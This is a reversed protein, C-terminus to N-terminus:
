PLLKISDIFINVQESSCPDLRLGTIRGRWLKNGALDFEYDHFQGDNIIPVRLSTQESANGGFPDWFIQIMDASKLNEAKMRLVCKKWEGTKMPDFKQYFIPDRTSTICSLIGNETKVNKVGGSPNWEQLTNDDFDWATRKIKPAVPPLDYPGLGIDSPGYYPPFGGQPKKCFVDRLAEYMGFGFELNPEAYSGEGWENLPALIMRKQHVRDAFNKVDLCIKRFKEVTRGYVVTQRDGHWPRSDWGTSLNPLFPLVGSKQRAELYEKSENVVYDFSYLLRDVPVNGPSMFHYLSTCDFGAEKLWLIDKPDASAEPWKMAIFYIGKYGAEVAIKRSLDLLIKVGEGKKLLNGKKSEIDILDKDMQQPSWIMVVPKGDITYYDPSNFCNEIWFRTVETQDEVSHSGPGNHNAWMMAWKLYSHYKAKPFNKVWHDLHQSGKNWYWDVFFYKIGAESAWKIQWDIVEPNSEDYWGLIPKRIPQSTRIRDWAERKSWGPFYLAGIEYDTEAPIPAPVYSVKRFNLAPLVDIKVPASLIINEKEDVVNLVSEFVGEELGNLIIQIEQKEFVPIEPLSGGIERDSTKLYYRLGKLPSGGSNFFVLQLPIENNARNLPNAPCNELLELHGDGEPKNGVKLEEIRVNEEPFSFQICHIKGTWHVNSSLDINYTNNGPDYMFIQESFDSMSESLFRFKAKQPSASDSKKSGRAKFYLWEGAEDADFTFLNSSISSKENASETKWESQIRDSKWHPDVKPADKYNLDIIRIYDIELTSANFMNAYPGGFDIRVKIIKKLRSWNPIIQYTHWNGDHIIPWLDMKKTHFGGFPGENTDTYYFEGKGIGNSKMRIEVLQGRKADLNIKPPFIMPDSGTYQSKWVGQSFEPHTINGVKWDKYDASSKFTWDYLVSATKPIPIEAGFSCSCLLFLVIILRNFQKM